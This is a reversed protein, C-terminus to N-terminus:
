SKFQASNLMKIIPRLRAELLGLKDDDLEEIILDLRTKKRRLSDNYIVQKKLEIYLRKYPPEEFSKKIELNKGSVERKFSDYINRCIVNKNYAKVWRYRSHHIATAHKLGIEEAVDELTLQNGFYDFGFERCIRCYIAKLDVLDVKRSKSALNVDVASEIIERIDKQNM